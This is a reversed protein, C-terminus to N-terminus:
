KRKLEGEAVYKQYSYGFKVNKVRSKADEENDYASDLTGMYSFVVWLEPKNQLVKM